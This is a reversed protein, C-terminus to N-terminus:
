AHALAARASRTALRLSIVAAVLAALVSVLFVSALGFGGAVLGLLPGSVALSLDLFATYAGMALGRSQAPARRIAEVGLGPYVLSYGLGTVAAGLLAVSSSGALWIAGLGLAEVVMCVAAVRAGGLRDPLHGFLLRGAIFAVSLATFALWLPGWGNAAFLLAVFTTIAGFGFGSLAVAVGPVWVAGAVEAFSARERPPVAVPRCAAALPLAVLSIITAALAVGFFGARGYLATGIPAGIAYAAYLATGVWAMVKGTNQPGLLALGWSLAGTIIFSEAIGLLARGLLLVGVAAAASTALQLSALYALGSTFAISLGVLVARKPGRTDAHHGAFMRSMLAAIFQSGAVVGVAFTGLGLEDHVHLPLVPLALGIILYAVFVVGVIPALARVDTRTSRGAM